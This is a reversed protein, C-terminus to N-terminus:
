NKEEGAEKPKRDRKSKREKNGGIRYNEIRNSLELTLRNGEKERNREVPPRRGGCKEQQHEEEKEQGRRESGDIEPAIKARIEGSNQPPADERERGRNWGCKEENNQPEEGRKRKGSSRRM